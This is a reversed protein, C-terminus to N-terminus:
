LSDAISNLSCEESYCCCLITGKTDTHYSELLQTFNSLYRQISCTRFFACAQESRASSLVRVRGCLCMRCGVYRDSMWAGFPWSAWGTIKIIHGNDPVHLRCQERKIKEWLSAEQKRNSSTAEMLHEWRDSLTQVGNFARLRPPDRCVLGGQVVSFLLTRTHKEFVFALTSLFDRMGGVCRSKAKPLQPNWSLDFTLSQIWQRSQHSVLQCVLYWLSMPNNSVPSSVSRYFSM